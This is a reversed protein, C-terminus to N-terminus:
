FENTLELYFKVMINAIAYSDDSWGEGQEQDQRQVMKLAKEKLEEKHKPCMLKIAELIEAQDQLSM